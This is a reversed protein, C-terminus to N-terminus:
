EGPTVGWNEWGYFLNAATPTPHRLWGRRAILRRQTFVLPAIVTNEAFARYFGRRALLAGASANQLDEYLLDLEPDYDVCYGLAGGRLFLGPDFDCSLQVVGYYFDFDGDELAKRYSEFPLRRLVVPLGQECLSQAIREAAACAASNEACVLLEASFPIKEAGDPQKGPAPFLAAPYALVGASEDDSFGLAELLETTKRLDFGFERQPSANETLPSQPPVPLVAPDAFGGFVEAALLARDVAQSVARRVGANSFPAREANFGLFHMKGTPYSWAELGARINVSTSDLPDYSLLSFTGAEFGDILEDSRQAETLEIRSPSPSEGRWLPNARLYLRGEGEAAEEEPNEENLAVALSDRVPMYPGTGPAIDEKDSGAPIVPINLLAAFRSQPRNLTIEVQRDGVATIQRVAELRGSFPSAASRAQELSFVVDEPTLARGDHFLVGTRLTLLFVVNDETAMSECLAPQPEFREDLVFLSEYVLPYLDQNTRSFDKLPQWADVPYWALGFLTSRASGVGPIVPLETPVVPTPSASPQLMDEVGELMPWYWSCGGLLCLAAVLLSLKRYVTM